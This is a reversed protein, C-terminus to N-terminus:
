RPPRLPEHSLVTTFPLKFESGRREDRETSHGPEERHTGTGRYQCNYQQDVVATSATPTALSAVTAKRGKAAM